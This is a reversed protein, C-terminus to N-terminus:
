QTKSNPVEHRRRLDGNARLISPMPSENKVIASASAEMVIDQMQRRIQVVAAATRSHSNTRRFIVAAISTGDGCIFDWLSAYTMQVEIPEKYDINFTSLEIPVYFDGYRSISYAVTQGFPPAEQKNAMFLEASPRAITMKVKIHGPKCGRAYSKASQGGRAKIKPDIVTIRTFSDALEDALLDVGPATVYTLIIGSLCEPLQGIALAVGERYASTSTFM